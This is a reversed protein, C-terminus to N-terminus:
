RREGSGLFLHGVSTTAGNVQSPCDDIGNVGCVKDDGISGGLHGKDEKLGRMEREDGGKGGRESRM